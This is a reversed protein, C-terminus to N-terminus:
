SSVFFNLFIKHDKDENKIDKGEMRLFSFFYNEGTESPLSIRKISVVIKKDWLRKTYIYKKYVIKLQLKNIM